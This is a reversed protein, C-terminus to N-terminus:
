LVEATMIAVLAMLATMGADAYTVPLNQMNLEVFVFLHGSVPRSEGQPDLENRKYEQLHTPPADIVQRSGLAGADVDIAHRRLAIGDKAM